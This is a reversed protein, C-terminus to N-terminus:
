EAATAQRLVMPALKSSHGRCVVWKRHLMKGDGQNGTARIEQRGSKRDGQNRLSSSPMIGLRDETM